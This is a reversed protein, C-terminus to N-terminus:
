ITPRVAQTLLAVSGCCHAPLDLAAVRCGALRQGLEPSWETLGLGLCKLAAEFGTWAQAFASPFIEPATGQLRATVQPGLYDNALRMGDAGKEPGADLRMMDVGVGVGVGVDRCIAAVSWGPSHSVSLHLQVPSSAVWVAKGPPSVLDFSAAPRDLWAGLTERLASRVLSRALPRNETSPTAVRIVTMARASRLEQLALALDQPWAHVAVPKNALLM